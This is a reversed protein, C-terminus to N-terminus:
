KAEKLKKISEKLAKVTDEAEATVDALTELASQKGKDIVEPLERHAKRWEQVLGITATITSSADAVMKKYGDVRAEVPEGWSEVADILDTVQRFERATQRPIPQVGYRSDERLSQSLIRRRNQLTSITEVQDSNQLAVVQALANDMVALNRRATSLDKVLEGALEDADDSREAVAAQLRKRVTERILADGIRKAVDVVASIVEAAAPAAPVGSMAALSTTLKKFAAAYRDGAAIDDRGKDALDRLEATYEEFASLAKDFYEAQRSMVGLRDRFLRTADMLDPPLDEGRRRHSSEMRELQQVIEKDVGTAGDFGTDVAKRMTRTSDAFPKLDPITTACATLLLALLGCALHRAIRHTTHNM